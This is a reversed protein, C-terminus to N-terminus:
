PNLTVRMKEIWDWAERPLWGNRSSLDVKFVLFRINPIIKLLEQTLMDSDGDYILVYSSLIYHFWSFLGPISVIRDHIHSFDLITTNDFVLIYANRNM